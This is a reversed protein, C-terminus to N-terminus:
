LYTLLNRRNPSERRQYGQSVDSLDDTFTSRSIYYFDVGGRTQNQGSQAMGRGETRVEKISSDVGHLDSHKTQCQRISFHLFIFSLDSKM